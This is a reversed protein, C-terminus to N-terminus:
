EGLEKLSKQRLFECRDPVTELKEIFKKPQDIFESILNFGLNALRGDGFFQDGVLYPHYPSHTAKFDYSDFGFETSWESTSHGLGESIYRLAAPGGSPPPDDDRQPCDPCLRQQVYSSYM